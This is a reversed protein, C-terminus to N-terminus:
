PYERHGPCPTSYACRSLEDSWNGCRDLLSVYLCYQVQEFGITYNTIGSVTFHTTATGPQPTFDQAREEGTSTNVIRVHIRQIDCNTDADYASATFAMRDGVCLSTTNPYGYPTVSIMKPPQNETCPAFSTTSTTPATVTTTSSTTSTTTVPVSTTSTTIVPVSTTSTTIVPVSTTSTTTLVTTTSPVTTTSSTTSPVTTSTTTSSTTTFPITTTSSSTAPNGNGGGGGGGGAAAAGGALLAAGIGVYALTSRDGTKALVTGAYEAAAAIGIPGGARAQQTTTYLGDVVFGFRSYSEAVEVAIAHSFGALTKPPQALETIVRIDGKSSIRQWPPIKDKDKKKVEFTQTKVVQNRGNVVLFLYQIAETEKSPSPLIGEYFDVIPMMTVFVYDREQAARFYCRVLNISHKDMIRVKLGIRSEPVFYPIPKHTIETTIKPEEKKAPASAMGVPAMCLGMAVFSLLTGLVSTRFTKM